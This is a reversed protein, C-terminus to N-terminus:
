SSFCITYLTNDPSLFFLAHLIHLVAGPLSLAQYVAVSWVGYAISPIM